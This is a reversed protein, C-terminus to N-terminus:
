TLRPRHAGANLDEISDYLLEIVYKGGHAYAGPDAVSFKYNYTAKILRATFANYSTTETPDAIGDANDDIFWYPHSAGNYVIATGAM